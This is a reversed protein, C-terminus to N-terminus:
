WLSAGVAAVVLPCCPSVSLTSSSKSMHCGSSEFASRSATQPMNSSARLLPQILHATSRLLWLSFSRPPVQAHQRYRSETLRLRENMAAAISYAVLGVAAEFLYLPQLPTGLAEIPEELSGCSV